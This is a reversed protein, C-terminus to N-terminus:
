TTRTGKEKPLGVTNNADWCLKNRVMCTRGSRALFRNFLKEHINAAAASKMIKFLWEM